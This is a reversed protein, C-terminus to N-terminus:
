SAPTNKKTGTPPTLPLSFYIQVSQGAKHNKSPFIKQLADMHVTGNGRKRNLTFRSWNWLLSQGGKQNTIFIGTKLSKIAHQWCREVTAPWVCPISNLFKDQKHGHQCVTVVSVSSVCCLGFQCLLSRVSVVSVLSVCCLGFQCLLSHVTMVSVSSVCCLGCETTLEM